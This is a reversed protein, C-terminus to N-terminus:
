PTYSEDTFSIHVHYLSCYYAIHSTSTSQLYGGNVSHATLWPHVKYCDPTHHLVLTHYIHAM